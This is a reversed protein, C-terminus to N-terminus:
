QPWSNTFTLLVEDTTAELTATTDTGSSDEIVQSALPTTASSTLYLEQTQLSVPLTAGADVLDQGTVTIEYEIPNSTADSTVTVNTNALLDWRIHETGTDDVLALWNHNNYVYSRVDDYGNTAYEVSTM